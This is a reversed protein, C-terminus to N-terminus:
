EEGEGEYNVEELVEDNDEREEEYSVEELVEDNNNRREEERGEYSVEELWKDDGVEEQEHEIEEAIERLVKDIIDEHTKVHNRLFVHHSFVRKCHSYSYIVM